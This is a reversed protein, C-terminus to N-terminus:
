RLSSRLCCVSMYGALEEFGREARAGRGGREGNGRGGAVGWKEGMCCSREVKARRLCFVRPACVQNVYPRQDEDTFDSLPNARGKPWFYDANATIANQETGEEMRLDAYHPDMRMLEADITQLLDQGRGVSADAGRNLTKDCRSSRFCGDASLM